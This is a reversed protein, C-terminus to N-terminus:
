NKNKEHSEAADQNRAPWRDSPRVNGGGCPTDPDLESIPLTRQCRKLIPKALLAASRGVFRAEDFM